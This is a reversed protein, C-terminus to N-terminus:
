RQGGSARIWHPEGLCTLLNVTCCYLVCVDLDQALKALGGKFKELHYMVYKVDYINPFYTHLLDFFEAEESPLDKCQLVKLLYAFDYGSHFAVWKVRDDLVVGSSMLLEAFKNVDVGHLKSRQFDIGSRKLLEISDKAYADASVICWTLLFNPAPSDKM